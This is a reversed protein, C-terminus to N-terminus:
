FMAALRNREFLNKGVVRFVNTNVPIINFIINENRVFSNIQLVSAFVVVSPRWAVIIQGIKLSFM